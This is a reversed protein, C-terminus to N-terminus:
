KKSTIVKLPNKRKETCRRQIEKKSMESVTKPTDKTVRHLPRCVPYKGVWEKFSSPKKGRGCPVKKPLECVNIWEEKFWRNLGSKDSEVFKVKYRGGRKKYERVVWSSAYISPWVDFKKKAEEQVKKYLVPHEPHPNRGKGHVIKKKQYNGSGRSLTIDLGFKKKTFDVSKRLTPCSRLIWRSWFGATEIGKITWDERKSHREIYLDRRHPNQHITYDSYGKAGFHVTKDGVIAMLKHKKSTSPKITIKPKITM